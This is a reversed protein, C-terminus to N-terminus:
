KRMFSLGDVGFILSTLREVAADIDKYVTRIDICEKEAITEATCTVEDLYFNNIVRWRRMDEPKISRECFIQYHSIMENIHNVIVRTKAASERISEVRFSEGRNGSMLELVEALGTDYEIQTAEYIATDSHIVLSRYNRLLIKTNARKKNYQNKAIEDKRKEAKKEEERLFECATNAIVELTHDDLEHKKNRSM